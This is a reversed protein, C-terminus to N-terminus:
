WAGQSAAAHQGPVSEGCPKIHAAELAPLSHEEAIGCSRRYADTDAVQFAGQGLRPRITRKKGHRAREEKFQYDPAAFFIKM